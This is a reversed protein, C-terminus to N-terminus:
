PVIRSVSPAGSGTGSSVYLWDQGSFTLVKSDFIRTSGTGLGNGGVGQCGSTGPTCGTRGGFDSPSTAFANTTRWIQIGNGDDFGVYLHAGTAALLTIASNGSDNLQTLRTDGSTNRVFLSWDGPDCQQADGTTGPTCAWLQPGTTTNRAAFLRGGFPVIGAIARQYPMLSGAATKDVTVSTKAGWSSNSPTANTWTTCGAATCPAPAGVSRALGGNNGVYLSGSLLATSDIMLWSVSSNEPSGRVGIAPMFQAGLDIVDTGAAATYGPLSPMTVLADLLPANTGNSADALFGLYVRDNAFQASTMSRTGGNQVAQIQVFPLDDYGGPALPIYGNTMYVYRAFSTGSAGTVLYWEVGNVFGSAFGARGDENDQGCQVTNTCGAVGITHCLVGTSSGNNNYASNRGGNAGYQVEFQWNVQAQSTGDPAMRVAGTGTKNPGLYVQGQYAFLYSFTTGDGQFPDTSLTTAEGIAILSSAASTSLSTGVNADTGTVAATLQVNGLANATLTYTFTASGGGPITATAPVPGSAIAAAGTGGVSTVPVVANATADGTNNVTLVATFTALLGTSAPVNWSGSLAAPNQVVVTAPGASASLAAGDNADRGSIAASMALSGASTGDELYTWSFTASQGGGLDVAAPASSTTAHAGGSATASPAASVARATAGGTNKVTASFTFSQGRDIPSLATVSTVSLQAPTQVQAPSSTARSSSATAGSNADTGSATSSFTLTGPATGSETFSFSFTASQGSTLTVPAPNSSTTALAGGTATVAPISARVGTATAGGSNTVTVPVTFAQGRDVTAPAWVSAQLAAPTQVAAVNSSGDVSLATGDNADTATATASLQVTGAGTGNANYSWTFTTSQGGAVDVPVTTSTTSAAALDTATVAPPAASVGRATAQGTNKVTLSATFTQGESISSPISFATISLSAASQVTVSASGTASTPAGSDVDTGSASFALSLTGPATGQETLAFAFSATSGAAIDSAAPAPGVQAAAGPSGTATLSPAVAKAAAGGTNKVVATATFSQARDITVPATVSVVVLHAPELVQVAASSSTSVPQGTNQDTGSAGLDLRLAGASTGDETVQWTFTASATPALSVPANTGSISAAAGGDVVTASLTPAVNLATTGGGNTVVATVTFTQGRSVAQPVTFSSVSLSSPPDVDVSGSGNATLAAGSNADSGSASVSVSAPAPTAIAGSTTATWAFTAYTGGAIDAPLPAGTLTVQVGTPPTVVPTSPQVAAATAEGTNTIRLTVVFAQGVNVSAPMSLAAQLAAPQQVTASASSLSATLAAGSNADSAAASVAFSLTGDGSGTEAGSLQVTVSAGGPLDFAAPMPNSAFAADLTAQALSAITVGHATAGGGNRLVVGYTLAQGRSISPQLAVSDISLQAPAQVVISASREQAVAQAGSNVDTGSASIGVQLTGPAAGSELLGFTFTVSGQGPVTAPLAPNTITVGSASLAPLADLADAEGANSLTVEISFAQGRSVRAPATVQAIALQAPTQVLSLATAGDAHLSAGDNEDTAHATTSLQLTGAGTGDEVFTWSLTTSQGGPLDVPAPASSTSAHAGGTGSSVPTNANVGTATASGTNKLTLLATFQQGRSLEPQMSFSVVELAAPGQVAIAASAPSNGTLRAGSNGDAGTAVAQASLTGEGTGDEVCSFSLPLADGGALATPLQPAACTAHPGGTAAFSLSASLGAAIAQGTNRLVTAVTFAQGRDIEAPVVPADLSLAAPTQVVIAGSDAATQVPSGDNADTALASWLLDISGPGTGFETFQVPVTKSAGGALNFAAATGVAVLAGGSATPEVALQVASAPAEGTNSVAVQATFTQGRSVQVPISVPAIHLAAPQQVQISAIAHAADAVSAGTMADTGDVGTSIPLAGAMDSVLTGVFHVQAGAAVPQPALGNVAASPPLEIRPLVGAADVEGSNTVVLDIAIPQSVNVAVPLPAAAISLAPPRLAVAALTATARPLPEGTVPDTADLTAPWSVAGAAATQQLTLSRSEGPALTAAGFDISSGNLSLRDLTAPEGGQNSLTLAVTFPAQAEVTAPAAVALSLDPPVRDSETWAAALTGKQGLPDQVELDWVGTPLDAPVDAEILQDGTWRANSLEVGGIRVHFDDNLDDGGGLRHVAHASFGNGHVSVHAATGRYAGRPTISVPAPAPASIRGGCACALAVAIAARGM